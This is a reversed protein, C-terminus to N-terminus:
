EKGIIMKGILFTLRILVWLLKETRDSQSYGSLNRTTTEEFEIIDRDFISM